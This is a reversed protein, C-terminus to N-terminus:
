LGTSGFGGFGRETNDLSDVVQFKVPEKWAAVLQAIKEGKKYIKNQNIIGLFISGLDDSKDIVMDEPQWQYAFRVKISDRYSNDVIGVSNKLLLNRKTISSRPYIKFYATEDNNDSFTKFNVEPAVSILTDYEIYDVRYWGGNEHRRGVIKPESQAIIDLGTDSEHASSPAPVGNVKLIKVNM